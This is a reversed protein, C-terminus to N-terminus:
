SAPKALFGDTNKASDVYFGVLDGKDSIGNITTTGVGHPDDVTQWRAHGWVNSLVFGHMNGAKDTYGGVIQDSDNIGLPTTSTANSFAFEIFTHGKLLFGVVTKNPLTLFGVVDGKDNIASATANSGHPPVIATFKGNNRNLEYAHNVGNGDTYFGVAIGAPNLGLLQNVTGSGTNPNKYSTFHGNWDIFGFNNGKGDVWFGATEGNDNIATVQTQASGPFNENVFNKQSYTGNLIYGKNPHGNAGSGFYGAIVGHDNIGLLQNFTRDHQDNLTWFKYATKSQVGAAHSSQGLGYASVVGIILALAIVLFIISKRNFFRDM